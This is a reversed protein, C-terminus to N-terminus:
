FGLATAERPGDQLPRSAFVLRYAALLTLVSRFGPSRTRRYSLPRNVEYSVRFQSRQSVPLHGIRGPRSM